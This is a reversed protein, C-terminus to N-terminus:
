AIVMGVDLATAHQTISEVYLHDVGTQAYEKASALDDVGSAAIEVQEPTASRIQRVAGTLVDPHMRDCVVFRAGALVAEVAELPTRVDVQVLADPIRRRVADLAREVSGAALTHEVTVHAADYLGSRGNSGGGCRVAYRELPRLGPTTARTDLLTAGTGELTEAWLAVTTAIGSLHRIINLATREATMLVRAPGIVDALVDGARVRCGDLVRLDATPVRLGFRAAAEALVVPLLLLGSTVGDERAYIEGRRDDSAPVTAATTVDIWNPGLEESLARLVFEHVWGPDLGVATLADRTGEQWPARPNEGERHRSM